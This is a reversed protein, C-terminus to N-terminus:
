VEPEDFVCWRSIYEPNEKFMPVNDDITWKNRVVDVSGRGPIPVSMETPVRYCSSGYKKDNPLEDWVVGFEEKLMTKVDEVSKNMMQNPSFKSQGLSQVSNRVCDNQRWAVSDAVRELPVNFARSDFVAGNIMAKEYKSTVDLEGENGADIIANEVADCFVQNFRLTAMSASISAMKQINYGFWADTTEKAYDTLVLTIEDSQTYGFVCGQIHECLYLMTAKMSSILIEDFPKDFNKTFTHFAKGDLRIIVPTKRELYVRSKNELDKMEITLDDRNHKGM